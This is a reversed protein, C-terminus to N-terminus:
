GRDPSCCGKRVRKKALKPNTKKRGKRQKQKYFAHKKDSYTRDLKYFFSKNRVTQVKSHFFLAGDTFDFPCPSTDCKQDLIFRALDLAYYYTGADSPSDSKSDCTWSFQCSRKNSKEYVVECIDDPWNPSIARNVTVYGVAAMTKFDVEKAEFYMNKALCIEEKSYYSAEYDASIAQSASLTLVMYFLITWAKM